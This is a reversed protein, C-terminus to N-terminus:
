VSPKKKTKRTKKRKLISTKNRKPKNETLASVPVTRFGGVVEDLLTAAPEINDKPHFQKIEGYVKQGNHYKAWAFDGLKWGKFEKVINPDEPIKVRKRKTPKEKKKTTKTGALRKSRM